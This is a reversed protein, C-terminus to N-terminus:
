RGWSESDLDLNLVLYGNAWDGSSSANIDYTHSISSMDSWIFNAATGDSTNAAASTFLELIESQGAAIDTEDNLYTSSGNHTTDGKLYFAV